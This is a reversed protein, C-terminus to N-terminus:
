WRSMLWPIIVEYAYWRLSLLRTGGIFHRLDSSAHISVAVPSDRSRTIALILLLRFFTMLGSSIM